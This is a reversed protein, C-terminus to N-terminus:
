ANGYRADGVNNMPLATDGGVRGKPQGAIEASRGCEPHVQLRCVGQLDGLALSLFLDVAVYVGEISGGSFIHPLIADQAATQLRRQREIALGM